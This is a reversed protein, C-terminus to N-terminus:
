GEFVEPHAAGLAAIVGAKFRRFKFDCAFYLVRRRVIAGQGDRQHSGDPALAPKAPMLCWKSDGDSRITIGRIMIGDGIEVDVEGKMECSYPNKVPHWAVIKVPMPTEELM